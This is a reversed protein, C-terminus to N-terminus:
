KVLCLDVFIKFVFQKLIENETNKVSCATNNFYPNIKYFTGRM